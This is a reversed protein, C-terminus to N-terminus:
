PPTAKHAMPYRVAFIHIVARVPLVRCNTYCGSASKGSRESVSLSLDPGSKHLPTTYCDDSSPKGSPLDAANEVINPIIARGSRDPM